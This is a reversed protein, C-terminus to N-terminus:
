LEDIEDLQKQWDPYNGQEDLLSAIITLNDADWNQDIQRILQDHVAATVTQIVQRPAASAVLPLKSIACRIIESRTLGTKAELQDILPLWAAPIRTSIIRNDPQSM